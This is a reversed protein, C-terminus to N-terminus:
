GIYDEIPTGHMRAIRRLLASHENLGAERIFCNIKSTRVSEMNGGLLIKYGNQFWVEDAPVSRESYPYALTVAPPIDAYKLCDQLVHYDKYADMRFEAMSDEEGCDAGIRGDHRYVHFGYTHSAIEVHGSDSLEKLEAWTCYPAPSESRLQPAESAAHIETGIVSLVAKMNYKQLLPFANKYVGLKGDDITLIVAKEPMTGEGSLYGALERCTVTTYGNAQLWQLDHEFEHYYIAYEDFAIGSDLDEQTVFEHYMLVPVGFVSKANTNEAASESEARAGDAGAAAVKYTYSGGEPAATDYYIHDAGTGLTSWSGSADQRLIEYTCDPNGDTFFLVNTGGDLRTVSTIVPPSLPASQPAAAQALFITGASEGHPGLATVQYDYSGWQPWHDTYHAADTDAVFKFDPSGGPRRYVRYGTAGEVSQWSLLASGEGGAAVQLSAPRETVQESCGSLTWLMVLLCFAILFIRKTPFKMM